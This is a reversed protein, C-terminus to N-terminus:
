SNAAKMFDQHMQHFRQTVSKMFHENLLSPIDSIDYELADLKYSQEYPGSEIKIIYKNNWEFISIQYLEHPINSVLRM